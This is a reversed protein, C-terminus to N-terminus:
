VLLKKERLSDLDKRVAAASDHMKQKEAEGLELEIIQEVGGAGLRCPVGMYIDELGYQGTLYAACPFVRQEDRVMAQIMRVSSASPAYFASGTKLYKVIEGGGKATREVLQALRDAPILQEVCIGSM